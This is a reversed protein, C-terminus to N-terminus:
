KNQNKEKGNEKNSCEFKVETIEYNGRFKVSIAKIKIGLINDLNRFSKREAKKAATKLGRGPNKTRELTELQNLFFDKNKEIKNSIYEEMLEIKTKYINEAFEKNWKILTPKSVNLEEQIENYNYGQARMIIFDMQREREIM